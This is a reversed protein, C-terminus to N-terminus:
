LSSGLMYALAAALYWALGTGVDVAGGSLQDGQLNLVAVAVLAFAGPLLWWANASRSTVPVDEGSCQLFDRLRAAFDVASIWL